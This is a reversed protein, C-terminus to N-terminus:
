QFRLLPAIVDEELAALKVHLFRVTSIRSHFVYRNGKMSETLQVFDDSLEPNHKHCIDDLSSNKKKQNSFIKCRTTM